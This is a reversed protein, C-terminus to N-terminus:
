MIIKPGRLRTIITLCGNQACFICFECKKHALNLGAQATGYKLSVQNDYHDSLGALQQSNQMNQARFPQRVM